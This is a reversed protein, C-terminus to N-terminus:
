DRIKGRDDDKDPRNYKRILTVVVALVILAFADQLLVYVTQESINM